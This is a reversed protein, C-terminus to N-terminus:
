TAQSRAERITKMERYGEKIENVYRALLSKLKM